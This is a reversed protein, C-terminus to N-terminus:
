VEGFEGYGRNSRNFNAMAVISNIDSQDYQSTISHFDPSLFSITPDVAGVGDMHYDNYCCNMQDNYCCNMQNCIAPAMGAQNLRLDYDFDFKVAAKSESQSEYDLQTIRRELNFMTQKLSEAFSELEQLGLEEISREWWPMRPDEFPNEIAGGGYEHKLQSSSGAVISLPTAGDGGHLYRHIVADTSPHGFAYVKGAESFTVIAVSADCLVCIESAKKFLGKRRKSFTVHKKNKNLIKEIPIKIRGRNTKKPTPESIVNTNLKSDTIPNTEVGTITIAFPNLSAESSAM